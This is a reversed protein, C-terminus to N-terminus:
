RSLRRDGWAWAWQDSTQLRLISLFRKPVASGLGGTLFSQGVVMATLVRLSRSKRAGANADDLPETFGSQEAAM